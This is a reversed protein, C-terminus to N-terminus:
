VTVNYNNQLVLFDNFDVLGDYNFDGQSYNGAQNYNNQVILFDNFDATRNRNADGNLWFFAYSIGNALANGATDTIGSPTSTYSGNPLLNTAPAGPVNAFSLTVTNGSPTATISSTPVVTATTVNNVTFNAAGASVPESFSYGISPGVTLYTFAPTGTITPAATDVSIALASSATSVSKGSETQTATINHSGDAITSFASGNTTVTTTTGSAVATGISIGDALINVTAGSVTGTVSFQLNKAASSNNRNTLNDTSSTGTDTAAVLDPTSPTASPSSVNTITLNANNIDFYVNGVAAVKFRVQTSSTSFPM